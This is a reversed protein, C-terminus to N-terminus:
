RGEMTFGGTPDTVNQSSGSVWAGGGAGDRSSAKLYTSCVLSAAGSAATNGTTVFADNNGKRVAQAPTASAPILPLKASSTWGTAYANFGYPDEYGLGGMYTFSALTTDIVLPRGHDHAVPRRRARGGACGQWREWALAARISRRAKVGM